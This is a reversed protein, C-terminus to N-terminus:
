SSMTTRYTIGTPKIRSVTAISKVQINIKARGRPQACIIAVHTGEYYSSTCCNVMSINDTNAAIGTVRGARMQMERNTAIPHNNVGIAPLRLIVYDVGPFIHVRTCWAM